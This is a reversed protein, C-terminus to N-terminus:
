SSRRTSASNSPMSSKTHRPAPDLRPAGGVRGQRCRLGSCGAVDGRRFLLVPGGSKMVRFQSFGEIATGVATRVGVTERYAGLRGAAAERTPCRRRLEAAWDRLPAYLMAADFGVPASGWGEWDLIQLPATLNAWHLDGHATTWYSVAPAPIGVFEPIAPDMYQQRVAVRETGAVSVKELVGALDTWWADPLQLGDQLIPDKSLVSEDVRVSLEARYAVADDIVDHM